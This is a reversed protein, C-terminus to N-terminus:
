RRYLQMYIYELHKRQRGYRDVEGRANLKNRMDEDMDESFIGPSLVCGQGVEAKIQFWDSLIGNVHWVMM